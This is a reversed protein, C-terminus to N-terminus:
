KKSTINRGNIKKTTQSYSISYRERVSISNYCATTSLISLNKPYLQYIKETTIKITNTRSNSDIIINEIKERYNGLSNTKYYNNFNYDNLYEKYKIDNKYKAM